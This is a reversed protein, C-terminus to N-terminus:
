TKSSKLKEYLCTSIWYIIPASLIGGFVDILYHAKIYVTSLILLLGIPIYIKLLPKAHKICLYWLICIIGVHSSPFAATPREAVINIIHMIKSFLYADPIQNCSSKFYYQPGAVPFIIFVIYYLFFSFSIICISFSALTNDKLYLWYCLFFILPYYCFYSFYMLESFLENPFTKSFWISPQGHFLSSEIQSFIYDLNPFFVNNLADTETYFFGLLGLIYFNRIFTFFRNPYKTHLFLILFIFGATGIRFLLLPYPNTISPFSFLIFIGTILLYLLTISDIPRFDQVIKKFLM